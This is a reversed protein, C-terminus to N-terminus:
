WDFTRQWAQKLIDIDADVICRGDQAKIRLKREENVAGIQGFPLNLM